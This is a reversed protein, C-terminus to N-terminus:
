GGAQKRFAIWQKRFNQFLLGAGTALMWLLGLANLLVVVPEWDSGLWEGEHITMLWHVQDRSFGGWDKALRYSVGTIVTVVLPLAVLPAMWRHWQRIRVLWRNM